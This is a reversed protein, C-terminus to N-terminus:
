EVRVGNELWLQKKINEAYKKQWDMLQNKDIGGLILDIKELRWPRGKNYDFVVLPNLDSKPNPLFYGFHIQEGKKEIVLDDFSPLSLRLYYSHSSIDIGHKLLIKEIINQLELKSKM